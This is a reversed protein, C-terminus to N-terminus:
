NINLKSVRTGWNGLLARTGGYTGDATWQALACTQGIYGSAIWISSGGVAATGYDGWRPRPPVQHTEESYATFGDWPGLGNAAIQVDGAGAVADLSAYANCVLTMRLSSLNLSASHKGSLITAPRRRPRPRSVM